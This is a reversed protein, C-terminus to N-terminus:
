AYTVAGSSEFNATVKTLGKNSKKVDVDYLAASFTLSHATDINFVVAVLSDSFPAPYTGSGSLTDDFPVEISGTLKKIGGPVQITWGTGGIIDLPIKEMELKVNAAECQFDTGGITVAGQIGLSKAM